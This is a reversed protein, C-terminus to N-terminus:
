AVAVLLSPVSILFQSNLNSHAPELQILIEISL